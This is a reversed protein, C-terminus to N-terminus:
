VKYGKSSDDSDSPNRTNVYVVNRDLIDDIVLGTKNLTYTETM